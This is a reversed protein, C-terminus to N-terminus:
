APLGFELSLVDIPLSIVSQAIPTVHSWNSVIGNLATMIIRLVNDLGASQLHLQIGHSKIDKNGIFVLISTNVGDDSTIKQSAQRARM